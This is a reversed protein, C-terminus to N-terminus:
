NKVCRVSFGETKPNYDRTASSTNYFLYRCWAYTSSSQSSSWWIGQYGANSPFNGWYSGGPLGTFGSSNIASTNPSNWFNIAKMKGGAVTVGGLYNTLTTWEGDSPIHFGIICNVTFLEM